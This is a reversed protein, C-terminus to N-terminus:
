KRGPDPEGATQAWGGCAQAMGPRIATLLGSSRGDLLRRAHEKLRRLRLLDENLARPKEFDAPPEIGELALLMQYRDLADFFVDQGGQFAEYAQVYSARDLMGEGALQTARDIAEWVTERAAQTDPERALRRVTQDIAALRRGDDTCLLGDSTGALWAAEHTKDAFVLLKLLVPFMRQTIDSGAGFAVLAVSIGQEIAAYATDLEHAAFAFNARALQAVFYAYGQRNPDLISLSQQLTELAEDARHTRFQLGAYLRLVNAYSTNDPAHTQFISVSEQFAAEAKAYRETMGWHLAQNSLTVALGLPTEARRMNAVASVWYEDAVDMDGARRAAGALLQDIRGLTRPADIEFAQAVQAMQRAGTDAREDDRLRLLASVEAYKGSLWEVAGEATQPSAPLHEALFEVGAAPDTRVLTNGIGSVAFLVEGENSGPLSLAADWAAELAEREMDLLDLNTFIGALTKNVEWALRPDGAVRESIFPKARVLADALTIEAGGEGFPDAQEFVSALIQQTALSRQAEARAKNARDISFLTALSLAFVSGTLVSVPIANRRVFRTLVYWNSPPRATIPRGERFRRIDDAMSAVSPYRDAPNKRLAKDVIADVDSDITRDFTSPAAPIERCITDIANQLSTEDIEYPQKGALVGYLLLGLQYVDSAVDISGGTVQEPSAYKLTVPTGQMRTLEKEDFEGLIRAIGFDLVRPRGLPDVLINQPKIDRHVILRRHAYDITDAVAVFLALKDDISMSSSFEVIDVGDVYEMAFWPRGDDLWGGDLFRALGPHDISALIRRERLFRERFQSGVRHAWLIKIAACQVFGSDGDEDSTASRERREAYFVQGTGGSGLERVIQWDGAQLDSVSRDEVDRELVNRAATSIRTLEEFGVNRLLAAVADRQPPDLDELFATRAAGDLDLAQDLLADLAAFGLTSDPEDAM